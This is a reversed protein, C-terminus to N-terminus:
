QEKRRIDYQPHQARVLTHGTLACWAPLDEPAGPDLARVQLVEGPAMERLRLRLEMVLEGCGLDGADWSVDPEDMVLGAAAASDVTQNDAGRRLAAPEGGELRTSEAWADAYCARHRFWAALHACLAEPTHGLERALCKLCHPSLRFGTGISMLVEHSSVGEGCTACATGRGQTVAHLLLRTREATGTPLQQPVLPQGPPM